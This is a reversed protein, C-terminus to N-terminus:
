KLGDMFRLFAADLLELDNGFAQQFDQLRQPATYEQLPPRAAVLKLYRAYQSSRTEVLFFTLAWGQSYADLVGASEFMEDSSVFAQLSKAPRRSKRYNGFWVFRERNLRTSVALRGEANRIGPAEFLTALGESIWKPNPGVRSQLGVNFSVQHTAEHIITDRLSAEIAGLWGLWPHSHPPAHVADALLSRDSSAGDPPAPSAANAQDPDYLAVRNSTLLYYGVVGRPLRLGEAQAYRQFSARDPFVIAVLPFEPEAISFGRASFYVHFARYVEEFLPAYRGARGQRACVLYHGTGVVEFEQGLERRLSDRLESASLREFRPAVRRHQTVKELPLHQLRGDRQMLWVARADHAVARGQYTKDGTRLELLAPNGAAALVPLWLLVLATLPTTRSRRTQPM